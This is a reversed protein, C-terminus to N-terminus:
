HFSLSSELKEDSIKVFLPINIQMWEYYPYIESFSGHTLTDKLITIWGNLQTAWYNSTFGHSRYARFVWLVTEVLVEPHYNKFVSIMFRVHNAHNDKMMDLNDKGVLNIIDPKDIMIKNMMVILQEAKQAYEECSSSNVVNLKNASELLFNKDM